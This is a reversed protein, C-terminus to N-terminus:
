RGAFFSGARGMENGSYRGTLFSGARGMENGSYHGTLFSGAAYRLVCRRELPGEIREAGKSM